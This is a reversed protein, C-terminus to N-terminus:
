SAECAEASQVAAVVRGGNIFGIQRDVIQGCGDFVILTPVARVDYRMVGERGFGTLANVRIVKAQGELQREVGDVVPKAV